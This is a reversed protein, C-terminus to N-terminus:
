AVLRCVQFLVSVFPYVHSADRTWPGASGEFLECSCLSDMGTAISLVVLFGNENVM